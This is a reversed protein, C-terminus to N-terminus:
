SQIRSLACAPYPSQLRGMTQQRSRQKRNIASSTATQYVNGVGLMRWCHNAVWYAWQKTVTSDEFPGLVGSH